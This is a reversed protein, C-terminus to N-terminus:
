GSLVRMRVRRAIEDCRGATPRSTATTPASNVVRRGRRTLNKVFSEAGVWSVIKLGNGDVHEVRRMQGSPVADPRRASSRCADLIQPEYVELADAPLQRVQLKRLEHDDPLLKKTRVLLDRRYDDVDQALAIADARLGWPHLANDNREQYVLGAAHQQLLQERTMSM